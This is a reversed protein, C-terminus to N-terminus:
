LRYDEQLDPFAPNGSLSVVFDREVQWYERLSDLDSLYELVVPPHETRGTNRDVYGKQKETWKADLASLEVEVQEYDIATTESRANDFVQYYETIARQNPDKPLEGTDKFIKFIDDVTFRSAAALIRKAKEGILVTVEPRIYSAAQGARSAANQYRGMMRQYTSDATDETTKLFAYTGLREGARDLEADFKLCAALNKADVALKGRFKDYGTSRKEWRNFDKEWADDSELLSSLDWTDSAKVKSRVSLLKAKSM